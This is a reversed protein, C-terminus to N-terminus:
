TRSRPLGWYTDPSDRQDLGQTRMGGCRACVVFRGDLHPPAILTTLHGTAWCVIRDRWHSATTM